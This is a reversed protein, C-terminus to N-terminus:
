LNIFLFFQTTYLNYGRFPGCDAQTEKLVLFYYDVLLRLNSEFTRYISHKKIKSIPISFIKLM